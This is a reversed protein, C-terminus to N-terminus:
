RVLRMSLASPVARVKVTLSGEQLKVDVGQPLPLPKKGIKSQPIMKAGAIVYARPCPQRRRLRAEVIQM